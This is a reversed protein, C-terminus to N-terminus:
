KNEIALGALIYATPCLPDGDGTAFSKSFLNARLRVLQSRLLSQSAIKREARTSIPKIEPLQERGGPLATLRSHSFRSIRTRADIDKKFSIGVDPWSTTSIAFCSNEPLRRENPRQNATYSGLTSVWRLVQLAWNALFKNNLLSDVNNTIESINIM